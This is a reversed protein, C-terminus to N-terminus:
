QLLAGIGVRELEPPDGVEGHQLRFPEPRQDRHPIAPSPAPLVPLLEALLVLSAFQEGLVLVLEAERHLLRHPVVRARHAVDAAALRLHRDEPRGHDAPLFNSALAADIEVSVIRDDIELGGFVRSRAREAALREPQTIMHLGSPIYVAVRARDTDALGVYDDCDLLRRRVDNLDVADRFPM